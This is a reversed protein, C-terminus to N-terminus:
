KISVPYASDAWIWEDPALMDELHEAFHTKKWATADHTSGVYGYGLDIILLNPLSIVQLLHTHLRHLLKCVSRSM